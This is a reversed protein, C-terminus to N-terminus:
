GGKSDLLAWVVGAMAADQADVGTHDCVILEGGERGPRIGLLVEGPEPSWVRLERIERVRSIARLQFRAQSGAESVAAKFPGETAGRPGLFVNWRQGARVIFRESQRM